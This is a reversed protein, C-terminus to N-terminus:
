LRPRERRKGGLQPFLNYTFDLFERDPHRLRLFEPQLQHLLPPEEDTRLIIRILRVIERETLM